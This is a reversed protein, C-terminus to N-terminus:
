RLVGKEAKNKKGKLSMKTPVKRGQHNAKWRKVAIPLEENSVDSIGRLGAKVVFSTNLMEVTFFGAEFPIGKKQIKRQKKVWEPVTKLRCVEEDPFWIGNEISESDYPCIPANCTEFYKCKM